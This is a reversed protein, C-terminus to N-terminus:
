ADAAFGIQDADFAVAMREQETVPVGLKTAVAPWDGVARAVTHLIERAAPAKLQFRDAHKVLLRVDRARPDDEASIQRASVTGRMSVPNLDFAPALRWGTGARLFGHNRWHDDVNNILVSVAIRGFMERLDAGPDASLDSITDTFEDYSIGDGSFDGLELATRASIYGIRRGAETRDFRETILVGRREGHLSWRPTALGANRALTLAVAEWREIDVDRDDSHPLKAIALRGAGTLINAKPRAGGPSTAVDNLYAIDADTAAGTEYRAATEVVRGLDHLNAVGDDGSLWGTDDEEQGGDVRARLRIAGMRTFDAVGTLFDYKGIRTPLTPDDRLRNAHNARIIREGWDDPAADSFAGFLVQGEPTYQTTTTFPLDPSLEYRDSRALYESAYTFATGALNRGGQFSPRLTGARVPADALDDVWVAVELQNTM